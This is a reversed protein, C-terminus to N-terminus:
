NLYGERVITLNFNMAMSNTSGPAYGETHDIIRKPIIITAFDALPEGPRINLTMKIRPHMIYRRRGIPEGIGDGFSGPIVVLGHDFFWSFGYVWGNTELWVVDFADIHHYVFRCPVNVRTSAESIRAEYNSGFTISTSRVNSSNVPNTYMNHTYPFGTQGVQFFYNGCAPFEFPDTPDPYNEISLTAYFGLVQDHTLYFPTSYHHMAPLKPVGYGAYVEYSSSVVHATYWGELSYVDMNATEVADVLPPFVYTDGLFAETVNNSGLKIDGYLFETAGQHIAM